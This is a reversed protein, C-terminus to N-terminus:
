IREEKLLRRLDLMDKKVVYARAGASAAEARLEADDYSSVIIVHAGPDAAMIERTASFGDTKRMKIDMLVWDPRITLYAACACVGDDCEHLEDALDRVISKIARRVPASDDVILINMM